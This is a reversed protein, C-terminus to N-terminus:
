RPSTKVYKSLYRSQEALNLTFDPYYREVLHYLLTTESRQRKYQASIGIALLNTRGQICRIFTHCFSVYNVVAQVAPICRQATLRFILDSSGYKAM